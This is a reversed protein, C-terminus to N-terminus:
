KVGVRVGETILIRPDRAQHVTSVDRQQRGEVRVAPIPGRLALAGSCAPDAPGGVVVPYVDVCVEGSGLCPQYTTM